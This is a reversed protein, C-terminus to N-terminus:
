MSERNIILQRRTELLAVYQASINAFRQTYFNVGSRPIPKGMNKEVLDELALDLKDLEIEIESLQQERARADVEPAQDGATADLTDMIGLDSAMGNMAAEGLNQFADPRKIVEQELKPKANEPNM